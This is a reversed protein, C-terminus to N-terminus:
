TISHFLYVDFVCILQIASRGILILTIWQHNESDMVCTQYNKHKKIVNQWMLRNVKIEFVDLHTLNMKLPYM